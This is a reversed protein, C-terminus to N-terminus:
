EPKLQEISQTAFAKVQSRASLCPSLLLLGLVLYRFRIMGLLMM